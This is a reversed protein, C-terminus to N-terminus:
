KSIRRTAYSFSQLKHVGDRIGVGKGNCMRNPSQFCRKISFIRSSKPGKYSDGLKLAKVEVGGM